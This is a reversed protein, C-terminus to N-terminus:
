LPQAASLLALALATPLSPRGPYPGAQSHILLQDISFPLNLAYEATTVVGIALVFIVVPVFLSRAILALSAFRRLAGATGLLLLAVATNPMMPPQGPLVTILVRAGTLWGMLGAAGLMAGGLCLARGLKTMHSATLATSM